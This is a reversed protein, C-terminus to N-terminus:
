CKVAQERRAFSMWRSAIMGDVLTSVLELMCLPGHLLDGHLGSHAGDVVDANASSVRASLSACTVGARSISTCLFQGCPIVICCNQPILIFQLASCLALIRQSSNQISIIIQLCTARTWLRRTSSCYRLIISCRKSWRRMRRFRMSLKCMEGWRTAATSLCICNM